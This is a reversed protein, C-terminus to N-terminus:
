WLLSLAPPHHIRTIKSSIIQCGAERMESWRKTKKGKQRQTKKSKKQRKTKKNLAPAPPQSIQHFLKVALREWRVSVAVWEGLSLFRRWLYNWVRKRCITAEYCISTNLWITRSPCKFQKWPHHLVCRSSMHGWLTDLRFTYFELYSAWNM